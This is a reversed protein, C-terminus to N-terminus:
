NKAKAKVGYRFNTYCCSIDPYHRARPTGKRQLSSAKM